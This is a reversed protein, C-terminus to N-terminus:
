KLQKYHNQNHLLTNLFNIINERFALFLLFGLYSYFIFHPTYFTVFNDGLNLYEKIVEDLIGGEGILHLFIELPYFITFSISVLPSFLQYLNFNGFFYHSIPIMSIYLYIPLIFVGNILTPKFYKFFLFILFVGSLSLFFGISVLFSPFIIIGVIATLFLLKFSFIDKLYFAFCFAIIEMIFSRVLSAPFGVFYLYAFLIVLILIGLDINRNRYPPAFLNYIPTFILYLVGSLIVLHLGSLALLHSIGLTSLQQRTKYYLSDGFFLAEFINDIYKDKHQNEIFKKYNEKELLGLHFTPAYFTTLYGWFSIKKSIVGVEVKYNLIDKLDDRSTTYFTVQNNKLKLVWHNKKKYQNVIKATIFENKSTFSKYEFYKFVINLIFIFLFLSFVQWILKQTLQKMNM